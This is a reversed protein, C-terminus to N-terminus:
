ESPHANLEKELKDILWELLEWRLQGYQTTKNWKDNCKIYQQSGPGSGVVKIPFERDGSHKPWQNMVRYLVSEDERFYVYRGTNGDTIYEQVAACIGICHKRWKPNDRIAILAELLMAHTVKVDKGLAYDHM